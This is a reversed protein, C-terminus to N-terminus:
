CFLGLPSLQMLGVCLFLVLSSSHSNHEDSGTRDYHSLFVPGKFDPEAREKVGDASFSTLTSVAEPQKCGCGAHKEETLHLNTPHVAKMCM